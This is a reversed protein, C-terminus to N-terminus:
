KKEVESEEVEELGSFLVEEEARKSVGPNLVRLSMYEARKLIEQRKKEGVTGAIRVAHIQPNLENMDAPRSVLVEVYGSPHIARTIVPKRYGPSVLAIKGKVRRRADNDNGRVKRWSRPVRLWKHAQDNRFAPQRRRLACAIRWLRSQVLLEQTLPGQPKAPAKEAPEVKKSSKAKSSPKSKPKTVPPKAAMTAPTEPKAESEAKTKTSRTRTTGTTRRGESPKASESQPSAKAKVKDASDGETKKARTRKTSVGMSIESETSVPEKPTSRSRKPTSESSKETTKSRTKKPQEESTTTKDTHKSRSEKDESM